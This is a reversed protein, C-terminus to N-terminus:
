KAFYGKKSAAVGAGALILAIAGTMVFMMTYNDGTDKIVGKDATFLVKGDKDIVTVTNDANLKLTVGVTSAAKQAHAFIDSAVSGKIDAISKINNEKVVAKVSDIESLIVTVQDAAVDNTKLYSEAQNIYEAPVNVTTGDVVVGANLADLIKQEDATIGEAAHAGVMFMGCMALSTMFCLLKKMFIGEKGDMHHM